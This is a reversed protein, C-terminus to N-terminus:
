FLPFLVKKMEIGVIGNKEHSLDGDVSISVPSAREAEEEVWSAGRPGKVPVKVEAARTAGINIALVLM